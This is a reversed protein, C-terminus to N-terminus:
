VLFEDDSLPKVVLFEDYSKPVTASSSFKVMWGRERESVFFGEWSIYGIILGRKGMIRM